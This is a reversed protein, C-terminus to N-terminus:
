GCSLCGDRSLSRPARRRRGVWGAAAQSAGAGFHGATEGIGLSVGAHQVRGDPYLLKAGVAGIEPRVAAVTLAALWDPSDIRTDDNLFVLFPNRVSRWERMACAPSTSRARSRCFPSGRMTESGRWSQEPQPSASGNDVIVIAYEPANGAAFISQVCQELLDGRDRTPIVISAAPAAQAPSPWSVPQPSGLAASADPEARRTLLMRRLHGIAAAPFAEPAGIAARYIAPGHSRAAVGCSTRGPSFLADSIHGPARCCRAGTRNSARVLAWLTTNSKTPMSSTSRPIVRRMSSLAPLRARSLSTAPDCFSFSILAPRAM